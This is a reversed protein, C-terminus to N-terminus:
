LFDYLRAAHRARDNQRLGAGGSPAGPGGRVARREGAASKITDFVPEHFGVLEDHSIKRGEVGSTDGM